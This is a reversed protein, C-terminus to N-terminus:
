DDESPQRERRTRLLQEAEATDQAFIIKVIRKEHAAQAVRAAVAARKAEGYTDFSQLLELEKRPSVSYLFYRM